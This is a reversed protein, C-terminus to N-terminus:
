QPHFFDQMVKPWSLRSHRGIHHSGRGMACRSRISPFSKGSLVAETCPQHHQVRCSNTQVHPVWVDLETQLKDDNTGRFVAMKPCGSDGNKSLGWDRKPSKAGSAADCPWARWNGSGPASSWLSFVNWWQSSQGYTSQPHHWPWGHGMPLNTCCQRWSAM